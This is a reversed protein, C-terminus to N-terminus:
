SVSCISIRQGVSVVKPWRWFNHFCFLKWLWVLRNQITGFLFFVKTYSLLLSLCDTNYKYLPMNVWLLFCYCISVYLLDGFQALVSPLCLLVYQITREMYMFNQLLCISNTSFIVFLFIPTGTPPNPISQSHDHLFM